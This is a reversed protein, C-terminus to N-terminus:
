RNDGLISQLFLRTQDNEPNNFLQQVTGTELISGKHMFVVRDAAERVFNMEHSVVLMTMGASALQKMVALVEVTAQPDLSSTPEDFFMIKPEMALARAIAVRQQEGGSLRSPYVDIKNSLGVRELIQMSKENAEESSLKRVFIPALKVNELVTKHPFLNFQQFVMGTELLINKREKKNIKIRNKGKYCDVLLKDEIYIQGDDITELCNLTRLFVSKGAGSHGIICVVENKEITLSVNNLVELLQQGRTHFTKYLSVAKIMSM